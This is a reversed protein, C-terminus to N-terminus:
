FGLSLQAPNCEESGPPVPDLCAPDDFRTNNVRITVPVATLAAGALPHLLPALDRPETLLPSLWRGAEELALIAPMRDHIPRIVENPPVTIIACTGDASGGEAGHWPVWLGALYLPSEDRLRCLYPKRRGGQSRWEYFGSAPVVCRRQRFAERFTPRSALGEARANAPAKADPSEKSWVARLGWRLKVLEFTSGGAGSPARMVPVVAGPALNYRSRWDIPGVAGLRMAVAELAEKQLVYRYCM